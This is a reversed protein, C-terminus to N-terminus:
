RSTLTQAQASRESAEPRRTHKRTEPHQLPTKQAGRNRDGENEGREGPGSPLRQQRAHGVLSLHHQAAPLRNNEVDNARRRLAAEETEIRDQRM